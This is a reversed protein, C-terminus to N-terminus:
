FGWFLAIDPVALRRLHRLGKLEGLGIHNVMLEQAREGETLINWDPRDTLIRERLGDERPIDLHLKWGPHVRWLRRLWNGGLPKAIFM